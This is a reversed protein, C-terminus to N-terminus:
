FSKLTVVHVKEVELPQIFSTTLSHSCWGGVCVSVMATVTNCSSLAFMCGITESQLAATTYPLFTTM